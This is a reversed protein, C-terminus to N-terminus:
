TLDAGGVITLRRPVAGEPPNAVDKLPLALQVARSGATNNPGDFSAVTFTYTKGPTLGIVQFAHTSPGVRVAHGGWTVNWGAVPAKGFGESWTLRVASASLVTGRLSVPPDPSGLPQFIAPYRATSYNAAFYIPKRPKAHTDFFGLLLPAKADRVTLSPLGFRWEITRLVSEFYGLDHSVYAEPTYASIVILPVRLGLASGNITPPRVTDYFGGYEDMTVFVATSKWEPSQEVANVYSAVFGECWGLAYPPHCSQVPPPIVWSVNPLAGAAADAFFQSRDVYRSSFETGYSESRAFTPDWFGYAAGSAVARSYSSPLLQDYYKWTVNTGNFLDEFTNTHNAEELYSQDVTYNGTLNPGFTGDELEMAQVCLVNCTQNGQLTAIRDGVYYHISSWPAAGAEEFWHNPLSYSLNSAFFRDSLGYQQALDWFLAATSGNYYGFSELARTKNPPLGLEGAYFNDMRGNDFATTSSLWGHGIDTLNITASAFPYPRICGAGPNSPFYPICYSQNLGTATDDCNRSLTPCYTGFLNDFAHNEMTIIVYHSIPFTAPSVAAMQFEAATPFSPGFEIHQLPFYILGVGILCVAVTLSAIWGTM